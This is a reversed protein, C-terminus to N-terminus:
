PRLRPARGMRHLEEAFSGINRMELANKVCILRSGDPQLFTQRIPIPPDNSSVHFLWMFGAFTFSYGRIGMVRASKPQSIVQLTEAREGLKLGYMSAGYRDPHGPDSLAIQRRLQEQHRAGLQVNEFFQLRSVGARWLISLEFLKLKTYDLGGIRLMSGDREVQLATKPQRFISRAYGEWVSLQQECDDCLLTERMGKQQFQNRGDPIISLVELRHKDDYLPEYIWEPLIHSNRLPKDQLCLACTMSTSNIFPADLAM